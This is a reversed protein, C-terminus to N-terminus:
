RTVKWTSVKSIVPCGGGGPINLNPVPTSRALYCGPQLNVETNGAISGYFDANPQFNTIGNVSMVFIFGTGSIGPHFDINGLAVLAGPGKLTVKKTIDQINGEVYITQGNLDLTFNENACILDGTIYVTSVLKGTGSGTFNLNGNRYLSGISLNPFTITGSPFPSTPVQKAYFASITSAPPWGVVTDNSIDGYITGKNDVIPAQVDGWIANGPQININTPSTLANDTFVTFNLVRVYSEITTRSNADGGVSVIKYTAKDISTINVSVPKDNVNETNYQLPPDTPTHPLGLMGKEISWLADAAGADAAYLELHRKDYVQGTKIGTGMNNLLPTIMLSGLLMFIIVLILGQGKEDKMPKVLTIIKRAIM